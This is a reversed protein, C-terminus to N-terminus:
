PHPEKCSTAPYVNNFHKECSAMFVAWNAEHGRRTAIAYASRVLANADELQKKLANADQFPQSFDRSPPTTITPAPVNAPFEIHLSAGVDALASSLKALAECTTPDICITPM